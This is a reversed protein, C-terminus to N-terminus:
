EAMGTEERRQNRIDQSQPSKCETFLTRLPRGIRNQEMTGSSQKGHPFEKFMHFKAKRFNLTRAKRKVHGMDKLAAFRVVTHHSCGLSGGNKVDSILESAKSVMLDLITDWRTPSDIVKSFFNDELYELFRRSGRCSANQKELLYCNFDWLPVLAQSHM